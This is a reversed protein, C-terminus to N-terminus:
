EILTYILSALTEAGMGTFLVTASGIDQLLYPNAFYMTTWYSVAGMLAGLYLASEDQAKKNIPVEHRILYHAGDSLSSAIAGTLATFVYLPCVGGMGFITPCPVKWGAGTTLMSALGTIGGTIAAKELVTMYTIM